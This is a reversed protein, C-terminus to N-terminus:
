NNNFSYGIKEAYKKSKQGIKHPSFYGHTPRVEKNKQDITAVLVDKEFYPEYTYIEDGKIKLGMFKEESEEKVIEKTKVSKNIESININKEGKKTENIIKEILEVLQSEKIKVIKKM